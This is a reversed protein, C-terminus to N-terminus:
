AYTTLPNVTKPAVVTVGLETCISRFTEELSRLMQGIEYPLPPAAIRCTTEIPLGRNQLFLKASFPYCLRTVGDMITLMRQLYVVEDQKGPDTYTRCLYSYLEPYFNASIPSLGAAGARLSDLATPTNANFLRIGTGRVANLKTGIDRMDCSTDKHYSFRETRALDKLLDPPLLVKYPVPCEYTGLPITGTAEALAQLNDRLVDPHDDQGTLQSSIVVAAAIGTDAMRRIFAAQERVSGGFTGTAVVPVHNGARRVVHRTLSLREDPSLEYMESSLCTAFLGTAGAELYFDILSDLGDYDITGDPRFPTLMVPVLGASTTPPPMARLLSLPRSM